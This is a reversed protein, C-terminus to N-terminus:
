YQYVKVKVMGQNLLDGVLVETPPLSHSITGILRVNQGKQVEGCQFGLRTLFNLRTLRVPGWHVIKAKDVSLVM